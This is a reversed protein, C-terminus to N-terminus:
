DMFEKVLFFSRTVRIDLFLIGAMAGYIVTLSTAAFVLIVQYLNIRTAKTMRQRGNVLDHETRRNLVM